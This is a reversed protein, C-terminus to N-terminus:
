HISVLLAASPPSASLYSSTSANTWLRLRTYAALGLGGQFPASSPGRIRENRSGIAQFATRSAQPLPDPDQSRAAPNTPAHSWPHLDLAARVGGCRESGGAIRRGPCRRADAKGLIVNAQAVM